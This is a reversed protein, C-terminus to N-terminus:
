NNPAFLKTTIYWSAGILLSAVYFGHIFGYIYEVM